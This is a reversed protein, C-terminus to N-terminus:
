KIDPSSLLSYRIQFSDPFFVHLSFSLNEKQWIERNSYEANPIQAGASYIAYKIQEVM